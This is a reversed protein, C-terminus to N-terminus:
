NKFNETKFGMDNIIDRIINYKYILLPYSKYNEYFYEKSNTCIDSIFKELESEKTGIYLFGSGSFPDIYSYFNLIGKEYFYTAKPMDEPNTYEKSLKYYEKGVDYFSSLNINRTSITSLVYEKIYEQKLYDGNFESTGIRGVAFASARYGRKLNINYTYYYGEMDGESKLFSSEEIEDVLLVSYPLLKNSLCPFIDKEIFEIAKNITEINDLYKYKYKNKSTNNIGYSLNLLEVKYYPKGDTNVGIYENRLTDNLLLYVQNKTYFEKRLIDYEDQSNIDVEFYNGSSKSPQLDDEKKCSITILLYILLYLIHTKMTM